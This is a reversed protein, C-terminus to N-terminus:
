SRARGRHSWPDDARDLGQLGSLHEAADRIRERDQRTTGGKGEALIKDVLLLQARLAAMLGERWARGADGALAAHTERDMEAVWGGRVVKVSANRREGLLLSGTGVVAGDALTTLLRARGGAVTRLVQVEGEVLVFASDGPEGELVLVEDLELRRPRLVGVIDYIAGDSARNLVPLRRLANSVPVKEPDGDSRGVRFLRSLFSPARRVPPEVGGNGLIALRRGVEQVRRAMAQLSLDLMARYAMPHRKRLAHLAEFSIMALTTLETARLTATRKEAFFASTEGVLERARVVGVEQVGVQASFGGSLVLGLEDSSQNEYWLTGGKAVQRPTFSGALTKFSDPDLAGFSTHMGTSFLAQLTTDM